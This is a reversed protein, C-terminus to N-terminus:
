KSGLLLSKTNNEDRDCAEFVQIVTQLDIGTKKSIRDVKNREDQSFNEYTERLPGLTPRATIVEEEEDDDEEENEPLYLIKDAEPNNEMILLNAAAEVNYKAIRLAAECADKEFGLDTLEAVLKDFDDPEVIIKEDHEEDESNENSEGNKNNENNKINENNKNNENNQDNINNISLAISNLISNFNLHNLNSIDINNTAIQSISTEINPNVEGMSNDNKLDNDFSNIDTQLYFDASNNVLIDDFSSNHITIVSSENLNLDSILKENPLTKGEYVLKFLPSDFINSQMIKQRADGVTSNLDLNLTHLGGSLTKFHVQMQSEKKRNFFSQHLLKINFLKYMSFLLLYKLTTFYEFIFPAYEM